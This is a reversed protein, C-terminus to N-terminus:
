LPRFSRWQKWADADDIMDLHVAVVALRAQRWVHTAATKHSIVLRFLTMLPLLKVIM